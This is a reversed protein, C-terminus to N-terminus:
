LGLSKALNKIVRRVRKQVSRDALCDRVDNESLECRKQKGAVDVLMTHRMLNTDYNWQIKNGPEAEKGPLLTWFENEIWRQGEHVEVDTAM